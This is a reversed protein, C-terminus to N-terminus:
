SQTAGYLDRLLAIEAGHHIAERHVHLILRSVPEESWDNEAPGSPRSLGDEGLGRVGEVWTAYTTDLQGLAEAATEAYVYTFYDVPEAGFQSASRDGFVGILIHAIRWAITTVPAPDPEPWDYDVKLRGGGGTIRATSEGEPRLSWCGAVPEWLYEEDTLGDLRPRLHQEWHWTLQDVLQENWDTMPM